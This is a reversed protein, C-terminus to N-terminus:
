GQGAGRNVKLPDSKGYKNTPEGDKKSCIMDKSQQMWGDGLDNYVSMM